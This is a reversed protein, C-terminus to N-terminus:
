KNSVNEKNRFLFLRFILGLVMFCGAWLVWSRKASRPDKMRESFERIDTRLVRAKRSNRQAKAVLGECEAVLAAVSEETQAMEKRQGDMFREFEPDNMFERLDRASEDLTKSMAFVDDRVKGPMCTEAEGVRRELQTLRGTTTRSKRLISRLEKSAREKKGKDIGDVSAIGAGEKNCLGINGGGEEGEEEEEGVPTCSANGSDDGFIAADPPQSFSRIPQSMDSSDDTCVSIDDSIGSGSKKHTTGKVKKKKGLLFINPIITKRNHESGQESEFNDREKREKWRNSKDTLTKRIWGDMKVVTEYGLPARHHDDDIVDGMADFYYDDGSDSDEDKSTNHKDYYLKMEDKKVPQSAGDAEGLTDGGTQAQQSLSSPTSSGGPQTPPRRKSFLKSKTPSPTPVVPDGTTTEAKLNRSDDTASEASSTNTDQHKSAKKQKKDSATSSSDGGDEKKRHHSKRSGDDTVSHKSTGSDQFADLNSMSKKHKSMKKKDKPDSASETSAQAVSIKKGFSDYSSNMMLQDVFSSTSLSASKKKVKSM